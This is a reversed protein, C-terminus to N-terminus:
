PTPDRPLAAFKASVDEDSATTGGARKSMYLSKNLANPDLLAAVCVQAVDSRSVATVGGDHSQLVITAAEGSPDENYGAVRVITYSLGSGKVIEEGRYKFYTEEPSRAMRDKTLQLTSEDLLQIGEGAADVGGGVGGAGGAPVLQRAAHRVM